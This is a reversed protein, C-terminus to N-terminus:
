PSKRKKTSVPIPAICAELYDPRPGGLSALEGNMKQVPSRSPSFVDHVGRAKINVNDSGRQVPFVPTKFDFTNEGMPDNIKETEGFHHTMRTPRRFIDRKM